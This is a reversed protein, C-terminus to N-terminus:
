KRSQKPLDKEGIALTSLARAREELRLKEDLWPSIMEGVSTEKGSTASLYEAHSNLRHRLAESIRWGVPKGEAQLSDKETAQTM